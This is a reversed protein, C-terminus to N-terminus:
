RAVRLRHSVWDLPQHAIADFWARRLAALEGESLLPKAIPARVGHRTGTLLPLASWERFSAALEDVDLGEGVLFPPLRLTGSAISLAALDYEAALPWLPVHTPVRAALLRNGAFVGLSLALTAAIVRRTGLSHAHAGAALWGWWLALPLVATLANHRMAGAYLLAAAALPLPWRRGRAHAHALAGAAVLLASFLAVDTWVHGRWLLPLPAAGVLLVIAMAAGRSRALAGAFLALGSWFLALHWAFMPQPGDAFALLVRWALVFGPPVVDDPIGNRAQWWASASDFSMLGPWFAVVDFACGCAAVLWPLWRAQARARRDSGM